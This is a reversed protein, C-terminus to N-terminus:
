DEPPKVPESFVNPFGKPDGRFIKEFTLYIWRITGNNYGWEGEVNRNSFARPDGIVVVNGMGVRKLIAAKRGSVSYLAEVGANDSCQIEWASPLTPADVSKKRNTIAELKSLPAIDSTQKEAMMRRDQSVAYPPLPGLAMGTVKIGLPDLFASWRGADEPDGAFLVGGGSKVFALLESAEKPTIKRSPAIVAIGRSKGIRTLDWHKMECPFIGMRLLNSYLPWISTGRTEYHGVLPGHSLDIIVCPSPQRSEEWLRNSNCWGCLASSLLLSGFLTVSGDSGTRTALTAVALVSLSLAVIFRIIPFCLPNSRMCLWRLVPIVTKQTGAILSSNQFGSTDGFVLIKGRGFSRAALLVVDGYQEGPDYQYNGLYSGMANERVGYDSHGYRLTLVPYWPPKIELSAGIAIGLEEGNYWNALAPSHYRIKGQFRGGELPYAADFQFKLGIPDLLSNFGRMLGFVDTHDGLVLLSGGGKVYDYVEQREKDNWIRHCNILLLVEPSTSLTSSLEHSEFARLTPVYHPLLGFMGGQFAGHKGFHPVDWDIGGENLVVVRPDKVVTSFVEPNVVLGALLGMIALAIAFRRRLQGSGRVNWGNRDVFTIIGNRVSMAFLVLASMLAPLKDLSTGKRSLLPIGIFVWLGSVFSLLGLTTPIPSRLRRHLIFEGILYSLVIQLAPLGLLLGGCRISSRSLSRLVYCIVNPVVSERVYMVAPVLEPLLVFVSIYISLAATWKEREASGEEETSRCSSLALSFVMWIQWCTLSSKWHLMAAACLLSVAPALLSVRSLRSYGFAVQSIFILCTVALTLAIAASPVVELLSGELLLVGFAVICGQLQGLLKRWSLNLVTLKIDYLPDKAFV